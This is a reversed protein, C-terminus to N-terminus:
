GKFHGNKVEIAKFTLRQPLKAFICFGVQRYYNFTNSVEIKSM